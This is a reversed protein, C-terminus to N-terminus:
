IESTGLDIDLGPEANRKANGLDVVVGPAADRKDPVVPVKAEVDVPLKNVIGEVVGGAPLDKGADVNLLKGGGVDVDDTRTHLTQSTTPLVPAAHAGLGLVALLLLSSHM